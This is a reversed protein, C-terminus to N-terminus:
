FMDAINKYDTQVKMAQVVPVVEKEVAGNEFLDLAEDYAQQFKPNDKLQKMRKEAVKIFKSELETAQREKVEDRIELYFVYDGVNPFISLGFEDTYTSFISINDILMEEDDLTHEYTRNEMQFKENAQEIEIKKTMNSKMNNNFPKISYLNVEQKMEGKKYDGVNKYIIKNEIAEDIKTIATMRTCQLIRAWREYSYKALKNNEWRAVAIYIYYDSSSTFKEFQNFYIRTFGDNKFEKISIQLPDNAKCDENEFTILGREKLSFLTEKIEKVNRDTRKAFEVKSFAGILSVTTKLEHSINMEKSLFSYIYLEKENLHNNSGETILSNEIRIFHETM